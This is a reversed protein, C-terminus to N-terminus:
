PKGVARALSRALDGKPKVEVRDLELWSAMLALEEALEGSVDREDIGLEGWAAQVLLTSNHRDAKLDVRAVLSEGLLFPLVYYGHKRKEKPVYIEIRYHFDFLKETRDREWILSDFPSLLARAGVRRPVRADPDMFLREGWGPVAVEVLEGAEVLEDILPRTTTVKFRHYDALDKASGIGIARAAIRLLECRADHENLTPRSLVSAPFMREPLDYEREFGQARRRGAVEGGWFLTEIGLKADDWRWGWHDGVQGVRMSLESAALPGRAGVEELVTTLFEPKEQRMRAIGGWIPYTGARVQEKKWRFLPEHAVPLISAEHAWYEFLEGDAEMSRLLQRSHPGLRAFLPLEESRTLVNVSDVQVIGIREFMKRVHRRDVRGSPRPDAFGQAALAIRRAREVPIRTAATM